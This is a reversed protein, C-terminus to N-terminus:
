PYRQRHQVSRSSMAARVRNSVGALLLVGAARQWLDYRWECRRHLLTGRSVRQLQRCGRTFVEGGCVSDGHQEDVRTPVRIGCRLCWLVVILEHRRGQRISRWSVDPLQQVGSWLVTWSSVTRQLREVISRGIWRISWTCVAPM